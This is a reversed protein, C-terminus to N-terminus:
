LVNAPLKDGKGRFNIQLSHLEEGLLGRALAVQAILRLEVDKVQELLPEALDPHNAGLGMMLGRMLQTSPWEDRDALNPEDPDLDRKLCRTIAAFSGEVLQSQLQPTLLKILEDDAMAMIVSLISMARQLEPLLEIARTVTARAADADKTGVADLVTALARAKLDADKMQGAQKMAERPDKQALESLRQLMQGEIAFPGMMEAAKQDSQGTGSASMSTTNNGLSERGKPYRELAEKLMPRSVLIEDLLKPEFQRIVHSTDFIMADMATQLLVPGKEGNLSLASGKAFKAEAVRGLLMTVASQVSTRPLTAARKVLLNPFEGGGNAGYATVARGFLIVQRPDDVPLKELLLNLALFPYYGGSYTEFLEVAAATKDRQLLTRVLSEYLAPKRSPDAPQYIGVREIAEDLDVEALSALVRGQQVDRVEAPLQQTGSFAETLLKVSKKRDLKGYLEGLDRLLLVQVSPNAVSVSAATQDLIKRAQAKRAANPEAAYTLATILLLALKM